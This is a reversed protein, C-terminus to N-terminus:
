LNKYYAENLEKMLKSILANMKLDTEDASSFDFNINIIRRITEGCSKKKEFLECVAESILNIQRKIRENLITRKSMQSIELLVYSIGAIDEREIPPLFDKELKKCIEEFIEKSKEISDGNKLDSIICNLQKRILNLYDYNM